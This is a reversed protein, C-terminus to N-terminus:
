VFLLDQEQFEGGVREMMEGELMGEIFAEGVMVLGGGAAESKRAMLPLNCGYAICVLDGRQVGARGRGMYGGTTVFFDRGSAGSDVAYLFREYNNYCEQLDPQEKIWKLADLDCLRAVALDEGDLLNGEVTSTSSWARGFM